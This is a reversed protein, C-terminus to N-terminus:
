AKVCPFGEERPILLEALLSEAYGLLDEYRGPKKWSEAYASSTRTAVLIGRIGFLDEDRGPIKWSEAYASSTRTDVLNRRPSEPM